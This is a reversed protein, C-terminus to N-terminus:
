LGKAATPAIDRVILGVPTARVNVALEQGAALGAGDYHNALCIKKQESLLAIVAYQECHRRWALFRNTATAPGAALALVRGQVIADQGLLWTAVGIWGPPAALIMGLMFLVIFPKLVLWRITSSSCLSILERLFGRHIMMVACLVAILLVISVGQLNTLQPPLFLILRGDMSLYALAGVLVSAAGAIAFVPRKRRATDILMARVCDGAGVARV